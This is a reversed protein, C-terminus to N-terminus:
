NEKVLRLAIEASSIAIIKEKSFYSKVKMCIIEKPSLKCNAHFTVDQKRPFMFGHLQSM